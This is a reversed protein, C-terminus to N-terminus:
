RCQVQWVRNPLKNYDNMMWVSNPRYMAVAFYLKERKKAIFFDGIKANATVNYKGFEM